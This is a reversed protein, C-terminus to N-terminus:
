ADRKRFLGDVIITVQQDSGSKAMADYAHEIGTPMFFEPYKAKWEEIAAPTLEIKLDRFLRRPDTGLLRSGNSTLAIRRVIEPEQNLLEALSSIFLPAFDPHIHAM